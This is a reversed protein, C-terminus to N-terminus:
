KVARKTEIHWKHVDLFRQSQETINTVDFGKIKNNLGYIFLSNTIFIAPVDEVIIEQFRKYRADRYEPDANERAEELLADVEADAFVALNLGPNQRQSSHWFAFPDPDAGINESFLLAQYERPRLRNQELEGITLIELNIRFGIEEWQKKLLEAVQINLPFNNTTITFELEIDGKKLVDSGEVAGFESEALLTRANEVNYIHAETVGPNYGNYGPPIPGHASQAFGFFLEDIIEQRNISQALAHRVNKDKLVPSQNKNFFLAQYQPLNVYNINIRSTKEIYIKKDFPIYGLGMINRSHYSAIIDDYTEYFKFELEDLYPRGLHYNEYAELVISRIEGDESKSINSAQFPGTGVPQLNFKALSFNEPDVNEWIHRPMIGQIFNTVFPASPENLSFVVTYDDIKSVEVKNWNLRVPSGFSQDQILKITFIIDDATFKQGDHWTIDDRLRFTYQKQDASLQPLDKALDAELQQNKNFRLLGSYIVRSIDEDVNNAPSLAPNLFRPQGALGETHRGGFDPVVDTATVYARSILFAGSVILAVIALLILKKELGSFAKLLRPTSGARFYHLNKLGLVVQDFYEKIQSLKRVFNCQYHCLFTKTYSM